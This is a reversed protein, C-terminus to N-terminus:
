EVINVYRTCYRELINNESYYGKVNNRVIRQFYIRSYPIAAFDDSAIENCLHQKELYEESTLANISDRYCRTFEDNKYKSWNLSGESYLISFNSPLNYDAVWRGNSIEFKGDDQRALFTVRDLLTVECVVLGCFHSNLNDQIATTTNRFLIDNCSMINVKLPNNISYGAKMLLGRAYDKRKEMSWNVWEYNKFRDIDNKFKGGYIDEHIISYSSTAGKLVVSNITDRDIAVSLAKRVNVDKFKDCDLNLILRLQCLVNTRKYMNGFEKKYKEQDIIPIAVNTIHEKKARFTNLDTMGDEIMLFKVCEVNGVNKKNWYNDVKKLVISSNRVWSTVKYPGNSMITDVSSFANVGYKDVTAKHMPLFIPLTLYDLFESNVNELEFVLTFRGNAYVGLKSPDLEGKVIKKANKIDFLNSLYSGALTDPNVARRLSFVYDDATVPDGNAWKAEEVLYFTYTKGDDSIEYRKAGTLVIKCDRDYNLLGEFIDNGVRWSEASDIHHPNLKVDAGINEILTVEKPKTERDLLSKRLFLALVVVFIIACVLRVWKMVNHLYHNKKFYSKKKFLIKFM